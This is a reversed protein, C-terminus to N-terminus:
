KDKLFRLSSRRQFLDLYSTGDPNTRFEIIIGSEKHAFSNESIPEVQFPDQGNAQAVLNGRGKKITITMGIEKFSYSGEYKSLSQDPLSVTKFSPVAVPQDYYIGILARFIRRIPFNHGNVIISIALKDEPVYTLLTMMGDIGGDHQYITKKLTGLEITGVGIGKTSNEFKQLFPTIMEKRSEESLVKDTSFLTHVFKALDASTSVMAGAGGANSLDEAFNQNWKGANWYFSYGDNNASDLSGGFRTRKLEAKKLVSEELYRSYSSGTVAEIIYGLLIYNTNSYQRREGVAFMPKMLSFRSLTQEKTQPQFIWSKPDDYNVNQPFNPIGSSHSLLHAVTVMESNAIQPFFKSLKTDLTLKREEILRFILVATFTKTISGIRFMTDSDIKLKNSIDRYGLERHYIIEGDKSINISGTMRDNKELEDFMQDLKDKYVPTHAAVSTVFCLFTFAIAITLNRKM